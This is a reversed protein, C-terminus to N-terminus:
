QQQVRRKRLEQLRNAAERSEQIRRAKLALRLQQGLARALPPPVANGVQRHRCVVNGYFRFNDPFGQSRACERVSVIRDQDPHLVQGVKGMPNPETTATPFHGDPDLRGYLGRWGNHRDATNPLCFPVLPEGKFFERSPDEAVVRQLVRWDAGPVGKPICRCREMNLENMQKVIHDRLESGASGRIARQFASKPEGTYQLVDEKAENTIAPLDGIADYVTVCRLPAGPLPPGSAFFYGGPPAMGGGGGGSYDMKLGLQASVFVHRPAPWDPLIEGPLAAWIFTRKRSQPAGYHGANLIGFRVQYGLDLLTRVVLRFVEGGRYVAFNRVNELLFYRPRYFDCYSLYAMVMSNQVQSWLGKNFRNMGSYGQCPPGGMMLAVSGPTPLDAITAEDLNGAADICIPDAFCDAELGAKLMAARLLVNCNNCFVKADPNNLKFAAAAESDYEIAWRTRAVGAQHMGESLGGCGAFIDLTDLQLDADNENGDKGAAATAAATAAVAASGSAVTAGRGKTPVQSSKKKGGEKSGAAAETSAPPPSPPAPLSAPPPHTKAPQRPDYSGTVQFTDLVNADQPRSQGAIVVACKGYVENVSLTLSPPPTPATTPAYLDWWDSRYAVDRSIDEPRYFRRVQITSPVAVAAAAAAPAKGKASGGAGGPGEKGSAEVGWLQVVAFARLGKNSGKHNATQQKHGKRHKPKAQDEEMEEEDDDSGNEGAEEALEKRKDAEKGKGKGAKEAGKSGGKVSGKETTAASQKEKRQGRSRSRTVAVLHSKRRAADRVDADVEEEEEDSSREDEEDSDYQDDSDSDVDGDSPASSDDEAREEADVADARVYLFDGVRYTVGDKIFGAGSSLMEIISPSPAEEVYSGLDLDRIRLERFKGQLPCYVTRYVFVPPQGLAVREADKNVREVDAKFSELRTTHTASRSLMKAELLEAVTRGNLSLVRVDGPASPPTAADNVDALATADGAGGRSAPVVPMPTRDLLFLETPAAVDALMTDRGHVLRRVQLKPADTAGDETFICQVLGFPGRTLIEWHQRAADAGSSGSGDGGEAEANGSAGGASVAADDSVKDGDDDDDSPNDDSSDDGSLQKGLRIVSGPTLRLNGCVAANYVTRGTAKDKSGCDGLTWTKPQVKSLRLVPPPTNAVVAVAAGSSKEVAAGGAVDVTCAAGSGPASTETGTASAPKGQQEQQELRQQRQIEDLANFYDSWIQRVQATATAPMPNSKKAQRVQRNKVPNEVVAVHAKHFGRKGSVELKRHRREALLTRLTKTFGSRRITEKYHRGILNLVVQGHVVVFREVIDIKSSLFAPHGPPLSALRSVLDPFSLRSARDQEDLWKLIQVAINAIRHVVRYWPAYRKQPRVLRYWSVDTRINVVVQGEPGCEVFWERIQTLFYRQGGSGGNAGSGSGAATDEAGGQNQGQENLAGAGGTEAAAPGWDGNDEALVGSAFISVNADLGAVMPVLELTTLFGDANYIAFQDLTRTSEREDAGHFGCGLLEPDELILEDWEDQDEEGKYEKPAPYDNAIEEERVQIYPEKSGGAAAGRGRRGGAASRSGGNMHEAYEEAMLRCALEYDDDVMAEGGDGGGGGAGGAEGGGDANIRIGGADRGMLMVLADKSIPMHDETELAQKLGQAFPGNDYTCTATTGNDAPAKGKDKTAPDARLQPNSAATMATLQELLFRGNLKLAFRAGGYQKSVKTRAVRCCVEEFSSDMRGGADTCLARYVAGSLEVQALLPELLKRYLTSAKGCEYQALETHLVLKPDAVASYKIRWERIPGICKVRCRDESATGSGVAGKARSKNTSRAGPLEILGNIFLGGQVTSLRDLPEPRGAPDVLTFDSLSRVGGASGTGLSSSPATLKLAEEETAADKVKKVKLMEEADEMEEDEGDKSVESERYTKVLQASKRQGVGSGRRTAAPACDNRANDGGAEGDGDDDDGIDANASPAEAARKKGKRASPNNKGGKSTPKVSAVATDAKGAKGETPVEKVAADEKGRSLAKGSGDKAKVKSVPISAGNGTPPASDGAAITDSARKMKKAKPAVAEATAAASGKAGGNATPLKSGESLVSKGNASAATIKAVPDATGVAPTGDARRKIGKEDNKTKAPVAKQVKKPSLSPRSGLDGAARM